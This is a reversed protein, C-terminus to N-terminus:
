PNTQEENHNAQSTTDPERLFASLRDLRREAPL